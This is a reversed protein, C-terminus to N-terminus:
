YISVLYMDKEYPFGERTCYNGGNKTVKAVVTSCCVATKDDINVIPNGYITRIGDSPPPPSPKPQQDQSRAPPKPDNPHVASPSLQAERPVGGFSGSFLVISM